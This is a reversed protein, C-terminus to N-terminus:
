RWNQRGFGIVNIEKILVADIGIYRDFRKRSRYLFQNGFALHFVEAQRLCSRLRDALRM